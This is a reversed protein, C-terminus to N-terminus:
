IIIIKGIFVFHNSSVLMTNKTKQISNLRWRGDNLTRPKCIIIFNGNTDIFILLLWKLRLKAWWKTILQNSCFPAFLFWCWSDCWLSVMGSVNENKEYTPLCFHWYLSCYVHIFTLSIDASPIKTDKGQHSCFTFLLDFIARIKVILVM